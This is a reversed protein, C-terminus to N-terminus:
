EGILAVLTEIMQRLNPREGVAEGGPYELCNALQGAVAFDAVTPTQGFLYPQEELAGEIMDLQGEFFRLMGEPGGQRKEFKALARPLIFSVAKGALGSGFAPAEDALKKMLEPGNKGHRWLAWHAQITLSEDAWDELLLCHQRQVPDAPYISPKPFHQELYSAIDTSDGVWTDNHVLVPVLQRGTHEELEKRSTIPVHIREYDLGKFGLIMQAKKVFASVSWMHLQLSAPPASM